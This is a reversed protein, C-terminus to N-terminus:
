VGIVLVSVQHTTGLTNGTPGLVIVSGTISSTSYAALNAVAAGGPTTGGSSTTVQVSHITTFGTPTISWLGAVCDVFYCKIIPTATLPTNVNFVQPIIPKNSLDVYSGSTAVSALSPRGSLDAYAGSTAVASLNPRGVLDAYSGSLAVTALVPVGILQSYSLNGFVATGLGTAIAVQGSAATSAGKSEHLDAGTLSSHLVDAM